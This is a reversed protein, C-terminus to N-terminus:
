SIVKGVAVSFIAGLVFTLVALVPSLNHKWAEIKRLRIEHDELADSMSVVSVRLSELSVQIQCLSELIRDLSEDQM